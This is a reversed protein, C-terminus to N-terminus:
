KINKVPVFSSNIKLGGERESRRVPLSHNLEGIRQTPLLHFIGKSVGIAKGQSLENNTHVYRSPIM